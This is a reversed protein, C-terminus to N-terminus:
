PTSVTDFTATNIKATTHSTVAMGALWTGSPSLSVSSGAIPTWTIGDTSTYATYTTGTREIQLYVPATGSITTVTQVGSNASLRDLVLIGSAPTAVM